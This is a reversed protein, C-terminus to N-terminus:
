LKAKETFIKLATSSYATWVSADGNEGLRRIQPGCAASLLFRGSILLFLDFGSGPPNKLRSAM